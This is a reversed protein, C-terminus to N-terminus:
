IKELDKMLISHNWNFIAPQIEYDFERFMKVVYRCYDATLVVKNNQIFIDRERREEIYSRIHDAAKEYNLIGDSHVICNRIKQINKIENWSKSKSIDLDILKLYDKARDLISHGKVDNIDKPLSKLIKCQYILEHELYSYCTILFSNRLINPYENAYLFYEDIDSNYDDDFDIKSKKAFEESYQQLYEEIIDLYKILEDGFKGVNIIEVM